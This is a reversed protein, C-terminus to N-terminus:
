TKFKPPAGAVSYKQLQNGQLAVSLELFSGAPPSNRVTAQTAVELSGGFINDVFYTDASVGGQFKIDFGSKKDGEYHQHPHIKEVQTQM